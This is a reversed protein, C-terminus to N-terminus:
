ADLQKEFDDVLKSFYSLTATVAEPATMDVGAGKLLDIPYKQCGGKLFSLYAEKEKKGGNMIRQTLTLAASIGTAYQYVYFNYYFHPIRAWEIAIEDDIYADEGFYAMNLKRYENKLLTPTLPISQEALHHILLEFEAFMTQRFFTTRIDDIKQNMIYLKEEKRTSQKLLHRCLLDENFTSAVEAVFIPYDSYHYPQHTRSLLSHMSHGAEHALTFVDRLIGKYNMLIYPATDYCGSSYAGSRKNKNEYRDVWRDKILGNKLLSQYEEGLPAVSDIVINEAENYSMTIDVDAILPVYMDYLHIEDLKMLKKRLKVYRHLPALNERVTKILSMYVATDINKPFLAADLCSDYNRAKANFIHAQVQGNILECITNEYGQFTGHIRNFANKRLVRDHNQIFTSYSAHTLEHEIGKSDEVSGFSFDANNLSGFAKHATDLAQGALAMLSEQEPPLTHNKLHMIKEIHFKYETIEPSTMIKAIAESPISLLTPELWSFEQNFSHLLATAKNYAIRYTENTIDEDHKLHSYTYLKEIRRAMKMTCELAARLGKSGNLMDDRHHQEEEWYPPSLKNSTIESFDKKWSVISNYITKVDWKDANNIENRIKTM